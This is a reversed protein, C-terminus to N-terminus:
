SGSIHEPSLDQQGASVSVPAESRDCSRRGQADSKWVIPPRTSAEPASLALAARAM